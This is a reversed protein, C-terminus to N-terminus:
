KRGDEKRLMRHGIAAMAALSAAMVALLAGFPTDDGTEPVPFVTGGGAHNDNGTNDDNVPNDDNPPPNDNAADGVAEPETRYEPEAGDWPDERSFDPRVADAQIGEAYVSVSVNAGEDARSADPITLGDVVAYEGGAEAARTLYYYDGRKVWGDEFDLAGDTFKADIGQETCEFRTRIWTPIGMNRVTVSYAAHEGPMFSERGDTRVELDMRIGGASAHSTIPAASAQVIMSAAMAIAAFIMRRM